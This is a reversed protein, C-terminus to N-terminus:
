IQTGEICFSQLCKLTIAKDGLAFLTTICNKYLKSAWISGNLTIEFCPEAYQVYKQLRSDVLEFSKRLFCLFLQLFYRM